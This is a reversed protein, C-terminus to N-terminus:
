STVFKTEFILRIEVKGMFDLFVDPFREDMYYTDKSFRNLLIGIPNTDFYRMPSRLVAYVAMDHLIKASLFCTNNFARVTRSHMLLAGNSIFM